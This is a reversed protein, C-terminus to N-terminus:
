NTAEGGIEANTPVSGNGEEMHTLEGEAEREYPQKHKCKIWPSQGMEPYGMEDYRCLGPNRM